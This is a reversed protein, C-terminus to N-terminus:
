IEIDPAWIKCTTRARQTTKWRGSSGSHYWPNWQQRCIHLTAPSGPHSPPTHMHTHKHTHKHTHSLSLTLTLFLTIASPTSCSTKLWSVPRNNARSNVYSHLILSILTMIDICFEESAGCMCVCVCVCVCVYVCVCVRVCVCVWVYECGNVPIQIVVVERLQVLCEEHVVRPGDLVQSNRPINSLTLMSDYQSCCYTLCLRTQVISPVNAHHIIIDHSTHDGHSVQSINSLIATCGSHSTIYLISLTHTLM